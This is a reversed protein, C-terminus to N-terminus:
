SRDLWPLGHRKFIEKTQYEAMPRNSSKREYEQILLRGIERLYNEYEKVAKFTEIMAEPVQISRHGRLWCYVIYKGEIPNSVPCCFGFDSRVVCAGDIETGVNIAEAPLNFRKGEGPLAKVFDEPFKRFGNPCIQALSSQHVNNGAECIKELRKGLEAKPKPFLLAQPGEEKELRKAQIHFFAIIDTLKDWSFRIGKKTPGTYKPTQVFERIDVSPLSMPDDPKIISIIINAGEYKGVKTFEYDESRPTEQQLRQLAALIDILEDEDMSLGAKTPGEYKNSHIFKRVHAYSKGKWYNLSFVLKARDHLQIVGIEEDAM